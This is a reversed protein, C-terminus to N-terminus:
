ELIRKLTSDSILTTKVEEDSNALFSDVTRFKGAIRTVYEKQQFELKTGYPYFIDFMLTYANSHGVQAKLSIDYHAGTITTTTPLNTYEVSTGILGGMAGLSLLLVTPNQGGPVSESSQTFDQGIANTLTGEAFITYPSAISSTRIEPLANGKYMFLQDIAVGQGLSVRNKKYPMQADSLRSVFPDGDETKEILDEIAKFSSNQSASIDKLCKWNFGHGEADVYGFIHGKAYAKGSEYQENEQGPFGWVWEEAPGNKSVGIPSPLFENFHQEFLAKQDEHMEDFYQSKKFAISMGGKDVVEVGSKQERKAIAVITHTGVNYSATIELADLSNGGVARVVGNPDILKLILTDSTPNETEANLEDENTEWGEANTSGEWRSLNNKGDVAFVINVYRAMESFSGSSRMLFFAGKLIKRFVSVAVPHKEGSGSTVLPRPVGLLLAYVSTGFLSCTDISLVRTRWYDWFQEVACHFLVQMHKMISLLRVARDYQWLVVKGLNKISNDIVQNTM